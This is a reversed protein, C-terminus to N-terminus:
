LIFYQFKGIKICIQPYKLHFYLNIHVKRINWLDSPKEKTIKGLKHRITTLEPQIRQHPHLLDATVGRWTMRNDQWSMHLNGLPGEVIIQDCKATQNGKTAQLLKLLWLYANANKVDEARLTSLPTTFQQPETPVWGITRRNQIPSFIIVM